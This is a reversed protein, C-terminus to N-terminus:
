VVKVCFTVAKVASPKYNKNGAAKVKVVVKYKGKKLGKKVTVNGTKKNIVIKKNGSKKAYSPTGKANKMALVKSVKLTRAKSKVTSYYVKATKGKVTFPNKAKNITFKKTISGAYNGKGTIIVSATSTGANINNKYSLKYDTGSVLTVPTGNVDLKVTPVQTQAKGTYTKTAIGSVSAKSIDIAKATQNPIFGYVWATKNDTDDVEMLAEEHETGGYVFRFLNDPDFEYEGKAHLELTHSYEVGPRPVGPNVPSIVNHDADEWWENSIEVIDILGEVDSNVEATFPVENVPDLLTWINGVDVFNVLPAEKFVPCIFKNDSVTFSYTRDSIILNDNTLYPAVGQSPNGAEDTRLYKGSYWGVFKYGNDPYATVSIEDGMRLTFNNCGYSYHPSIYKGSVQFQGGVGRAANSMDYSQVSLSPDNWRAYLVMDGQVQIVDGPDYWTGMGSPATNWGHFVLGYPAQISCPPMEFEQGSGVQEPAMEYFGGNADFSVTFVGDDGDAAYAPQAFCIFAFTALFLVAINIFAKSRM